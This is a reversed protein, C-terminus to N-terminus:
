RNSALIKIKSQNALIGEICLLSENICTYRKGQQDAQIAGERAHTITVFMWRSKALSPDNMREPLITEQSQSCSKDSKIRGLMGLRDAPQETAAASDGLLVIPSNPSRLLGNYAEYFPRRAARQPRLRLTLFCM